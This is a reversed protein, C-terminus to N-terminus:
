TFDKRMTLLTRQEKFGYHGLVKLTADDGVNATMRIPRSPVAALMHLARSVLAAEV